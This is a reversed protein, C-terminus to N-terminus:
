HDETVIDECWDCRGTFNICDMCHPRGCVNCNVLQSETPENKCEKNPCKM